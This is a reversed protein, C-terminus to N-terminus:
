QHLWEEFKSRLAVLDQKQLWTRFPGNVQAPGDQADIMCFVSSERPVVGFLFCDV